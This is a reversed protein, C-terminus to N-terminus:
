IKIFELLFLVIKDEHTVFPYYIRVYTIDVHRWFYRLDYFSPFMFRHTFWGYESELRPRYWFFILKIEILQM